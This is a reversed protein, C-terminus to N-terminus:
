NTSAGCGPLSISGEVARHGAVLEGARPGSLRNLYGLDEAERGLKICKVMRAMDVSRLDSM